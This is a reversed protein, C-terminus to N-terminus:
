PSQPNRIASRSDALADDGWTINAHSWIIPAESPAFTASGLARAAATDLDINGSSRQLFIFRVEGRGTVGLLFSSPEVPATARVSHSFEVPHTLGREALPPSFSVRTSLPAPAPAVPAPQPDASRIIALPNRAAPFQV